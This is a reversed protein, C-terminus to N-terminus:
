HYQFSTENTNLREFDGVSESILGQYTNYNVFTKDIYPPPHLPPSPGWGKRREQYGEREELYIFSRRSIFRSHAVYILSEAEEMPIM